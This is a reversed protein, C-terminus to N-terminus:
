GLYPSDERVEILTPGDAAVATRIADGLAALSDPRVARCGFAKALAQFDPNRLRVGVEPIGRETMGEAIQQLADNNWLLIAIPLGLEVATALEQVTFLFGADGAIAVTAREPAALKAGIAAPLAYGLTGYGVPHLWSRPAQSRYYYCGTYAIQTMDTALVADEPLAERVADLVMAHKRQLPSLDAQHRRRLGAIESPPVGDGRRSALRDALAVLTSEADALLAVAPEYDRTLTPADIDIRILKGEIPLRAVWSDTEALETGVAVVVDASQLLDRSPQLQLTAGACRPHDDRVVGKAAVTLFLAAGLKEVFTALAAGCDVTGGGAIVVPRRASQLLQAAADLSEADPQPRRKGDAQKGNFRAPAQLVDLPLEIHVPRPRAADFVQYADAMAKPLEAPDHITRSFATLPAMVARQDTIEHLRGRGRGLDETANVSSVVLMPVSDSFAQGIPTAANTVGPGTILVCVGPRGSVRAYGDAMFGAGQEHRVAIHRLKSGALGRYLDLTHVGPIGFVTDVGYAELLDIAAEGCTRNATM